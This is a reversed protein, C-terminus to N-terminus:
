QPYYVPLFRHEINYKEYFKALEESEFQPGNDSILIRPVGFRTIVHKWIFRVINDSSTKKLPAVEVWKSFDDVAVVVYKVSGKAKPLKGVLDIEWMIFPIHNLIPTMSTTPVYQASGMRQCADCKKMFDMSDRRTNKSIDEQSVCSLLPSDWSKKYLEDNYIYFRFSRNKIKRAEITTEPLQGKVLYRAIPSRWDEPEELVLLAIKMALFRAFRWISEKHCCMM